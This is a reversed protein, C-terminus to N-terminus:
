TFPVWRFEELTTDKHKTLWAEIEKCAAMNAPEITLDRYHLGYKDVHLDWRAKVLILTVVGGDAPVEAPGVVVSGLPDMPFVHAHTREEKDAMYCIVCLQSEHVKVFKPPLCIHTNRWNYWTM